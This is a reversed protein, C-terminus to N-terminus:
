EGKKMMTAATELLFKRKTLTNEGEIEIFVTRAGQMRFHFKTIGIEGLRSQGTMPQSNKTIEPLRSGNITYVVYKQGTTDDDKIWIRVEEGVLKVSDAYTIDRVIREVSIRVQEQLEWDSVAFFYLKVGWLFATGLSVLLISLLPMAILLELLAMGQQQKLGRLDQWKNMARCWDNFFLRKKM